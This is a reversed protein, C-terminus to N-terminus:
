QLLFSLDSNTEYEVPQQGRIFLRAKRDGKLTLKNGNLHLLSGERLGVVPPTNPIEHYQNIRQERTEGQHVSNVDPDLYHPNINFPVLNLASFSPPYIIPMDNTTCINVTAVNTGASCGMYPVGEKTVKQQIKTILNNEYLTSLLKFTNGGGIFIAQANDIAEEPFKFTHISTVDFGFEKLPKRVTETYQEYDFLAYPIFLIRSVNKLLM